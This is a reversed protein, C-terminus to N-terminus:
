AGGEAGETVPPPLSPPEAGGTAPGNGPAPGNSPPPSEPVLSIGAQALAPALAMKLSSGLLVQAVGREEDPVRLFTLFKGVEFDIIPGVAQGGAQGTTPLGLAGGLAHGAENIAALAEPHRDLGLIKSLDSM